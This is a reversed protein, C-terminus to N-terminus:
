ELCAVEALLLHEVGCHVVFMSLLPIISLMCSAFSSVSAEKVRREALWDINVKGHTQALSCNGLFTQLMSVIIDVSRMRHILLGVGTNGVGDRLVCHMWDRCHHSTSMYLGRLAVDQLLGSPHYDFGTEIQLDHLKEKRRGDGLRSFLTRLRGFVASM